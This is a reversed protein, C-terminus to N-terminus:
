SQQLECLAPQKSFMLDQSFFYFLWLGHKWLRSFFPYFVLTWLGAIYWMFVVFRLFSVSFSVSFFFSFLYVKHVGVQLVWYAKDSYHIETLTFHSKPFSFSCLILFDFSFAFFHKQTETHAPFPYFWFRPFLKTVMGCFLGLLSSCLTLCM